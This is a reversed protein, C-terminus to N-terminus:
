AFFCQLEYLPDAFELVDNNTEVELALTPKLNEAILAQKLKEIQLLRNHARYNVCLYDGSPLSNWSIDQRTEEYWVDYYIKSYQLPESPSDSLNVVFGAEHFTLLDLSRIEKYLYYFSIIAEDTNPENHYDHAWIYRKEIARWYAGKNRAYTIDRRINKAKERNLHIAREMEKVRLIAKQTHKELFNVMKPPDNGYAFGEKIEALSCGMLRYEMAQVIHPFQYVSYYRYGTAPDREKPKILGISDYFRLTKININLIKAVEGISLLKKM